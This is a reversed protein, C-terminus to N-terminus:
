NSKAPRRAIKKNEATKIALEYRAMAARKHEATPHVYKQVIRISNHGLIAALTALDVGAQAMRTAFTHRFDYIVWNIAIGSKLAIACLRDHASNLRTIHQGPKRKSPFIWPSNGTMRRALISRSEATLDLIRRAAASKGRQIRIQGRELDVDTKLLGTLEDPRMGQNLLLRGADYLDQYKAARIFYTKEEKTTLIHMRVADADSPMSVGRIPNDRTWRQKIAYHFFTSLAHLDHRVTIDRVKHEKVRWTKYSEVRAEDILSVPERGFFEKVSAFSTAIRKSSNPHERYEVKTWEVFETAADNFERVSIRHSPRRGELLAQRYEIELQQAKIMNSKTAALGTTEAYERGDLKFRFHWKGGRNRISM